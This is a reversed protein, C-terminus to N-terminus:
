TRMELLKTIAAKTITLMEDRYEKTCNLFSGKSNLTNHSFAACLLIEDDSPPSTLKDYGVIDRLERKLEKADGSLKEDPCIAYQQWIMKFHNLLEADDVFCWMYKSPQSEWEALQSTLSRLKKILAANTQAMSDITGQLGEIQARLDYVIQPTWDADCACEGENWANCICGKGDAM